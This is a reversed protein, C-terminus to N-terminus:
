WNPHVKLWFEPEYCFKRYVDSRKASIHKTLTFDLTDVQLERYTFYGLVVASCSGVVFKVSAMVFRYPLIYVVHCSACLPLPRKAKGALLSSSLANM